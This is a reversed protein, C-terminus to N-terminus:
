APYGKTCDNRTLTNLQETGDGVRSGAKSLAVTGPVANEFSTSPPVDRGALTGSHKKTCPTSLWPAPGRLAMVVYSVFQSARLLPTTM